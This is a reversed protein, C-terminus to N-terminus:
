NQVYLQQMLANQLVQSFNVNEALAADNLWQPITLTKKVAKSASMYSSVDGYILTAFSDKDLEISKIDCPSNVKNGDELETIVYLELAEKANDVTESLTDGYTHCGPLDPFEVWYCGEEQHFIAPYIVKM